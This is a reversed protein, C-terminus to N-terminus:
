SKLLKVTKILQNQRYINILYIGTSLSSVDITHSANESSKFIKQGNLNFIEVLIVSNINSCVNIGM